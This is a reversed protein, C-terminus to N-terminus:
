TILSYGFRTLIDYFHFNYTMEFRIKFLKKLPQVSFEDTGFFTINLNKVQKCYYRFSCYSWKKNNTGLVPKLIKM